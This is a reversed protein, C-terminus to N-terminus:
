QSNLQGSIDTKPTLVFGRYNCSVVKDIQGQYSSFGVYSLFQRPKGDVNAGTYWSKGKGLLNNQALEQVLDMWNTQAKKTPEIVVIYHRSMYRLCNAIWDVHQEICRVVNTFVSGPSGPGTIVFVNPFEAMALGLYAAAGNEWEDKLLRGGRGRIDMALIAGTMADFGTACILIDLPYLEKSTQVGAAKIEQIPEVQASTLHVNPRNFADYFGYELAPRKSGLPHKAPVLQEALKPDNVKDRVKGRIFDSMVDNAEQNTFVDDFSFLFELGGKDWYYEYLAEREEETVDVTSIVPNAFSLGMPSELWKQWLVPYHQKIKQTYEESSPYNRAPIAHSPTRQFVHVEDAHEAIEPLLQVGSCGTGIIGVRRGGFNVPEHPWVGTHCIDGGFKELGRIKPLIPVSLSGVASIVFRSRIIKGTDTKTLWHDRAEDYVMSTVRTKFTIHPRLSFRDTVFRIYRQIEPQSAYRESWTWEQELERSFSYCYEVSQIDCRAGPYRNWYWTGGVDDGAEFVRAKLNLERVLKYLMYVGAFGAGVVLVDVDEGAEPLPKAEPIVM